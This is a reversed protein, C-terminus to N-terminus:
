SNVVYSVINWKNILVRRLTGIYFRFSIVLMARWIHQSEHRVM